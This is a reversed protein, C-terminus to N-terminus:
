RGACSTAPARSSSAGRRACSAVAWAARRRARRALRRGVRGDRDHREHRSPARWRATSSGTASAGCTSSSATATSASSTGCGAPTPTWRARRAGAVPLGLDDRLLEDKTFCARRSPRSCACCRSSRRRSSSRRRRAPAGVARRPDIELEGVRLRGRAARRARARRLLAAVRGRLEPYSFPKGVYDDCGREFGRLATSSATAAPRARAAAARPDIRRRSATPTACAASCTSARATPCGSTSSRSTPSREDRAPAARRARLEAVLLEYGDARSTTPWSRGRRRTTRSSSSPPPPTPTCARGLRGARGSEGGEPHLM